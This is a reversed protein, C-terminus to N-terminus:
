KRDTGDKDAGFRENSHHAWKDQEQNVQNQDPYEADHYEYEAKKGGRKAGVLAIVLLLSVHKFM